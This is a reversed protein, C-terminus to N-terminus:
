FNLLFDPFIINLNKRCGQLVMVCWSEKEDVPLLDESAFDLLAWQINLIQYFFWLFFSFCVFLLIMLCSSITIFCVLFIYNWNIFKIWTWSSEFLSLNERIYLTTRLEAAELSVM